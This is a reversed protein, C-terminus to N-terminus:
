IWLDMRTDLLEAEQRVAEYNDEAENKESRLNQVFHIVTHKKINNLQKLESLTLKININRAQILYRSTGISIILFHNSIDKCTMIM